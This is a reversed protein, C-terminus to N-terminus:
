RGTEAVSDTVDSSASESLKHRDVGAFASRPTLLEASTQAPKALGERSHRRTRLLIHYLEHATVRGLARGLLEDRDAAPAAQMDRDIFKRVAYCQVDAIPLISGDVVQTQGLPEADSRSLRISAPIPADPRCDGRLHIVAVRDFVEPRLGDQWTIEVGSPFMAAEVERQIAQLIGSGLARDHNLYVGLSGGLKGPEDAGAIACFLVLLTASRHRM